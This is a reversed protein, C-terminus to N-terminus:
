VAVMMPATTRRSGTTSWSPGNHTRFMSSYLREAPPNACWGLWWAGIGVQVAFLGFRVVVAWHSTSTLHVVSQGVRAALLVPALPDTVALREGLGAVVVIAAFVPLSEVCNGHAARGRLVLVSRWSIIAAVLLLPWAAFGLLALLTPPM